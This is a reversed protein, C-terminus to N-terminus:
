TLPVTFSRTTQLGDGDSGCNGTGVVTGIIGNVIERVRCNDSDAIYLNQAGDLALGWPHFVQASAAPGVDGGFGCTVTGAITTIIGATVKRVRCNFGDAIYVNGASGM